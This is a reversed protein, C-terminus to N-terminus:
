LLNESKRFAAMSGLIIIMVRYNTPDVKLIYFEYVTSTFLYAIIIQLALQILLRM